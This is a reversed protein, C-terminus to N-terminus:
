NTTFRSAHRLAGRWRGMGLVKYITQVWGSYLLYLTRIGVALRRDRQFQAISNIQYVLLSCHHLTESSVVSRRATSNRRSSPTDLRLRSSRKTKMESMLELIRQKMEADECLDIYAIVAM